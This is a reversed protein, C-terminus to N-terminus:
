LEWVLGTRVNVKENQEGHLNEAVPIQVQSRLSFLNSFRLRLGPSFYVVTGGSNADKEAGEADYDAVRGNVEAILDLAGFLAHQAAANFRFINGYAFDHDNTANAQYSVGLFLPVSGAGRMLQLGFIGAWAGTGTQLHQELLAGSEDKQDSAGLPIRAGAAAQVSWAGRGFDFVNALATIEPDGLGNATEAGLSSSLRNFTYPASAMLMVRNSLGYKLNLQVANQVQSETAAIDHQIGYPSFAKALGHDHDDEHTNHIMTASKRTNFHEVAILFRGSNLQRANNLFFSQDGSRCISCAAASKHAFLVTLLLAFAFRAVRM